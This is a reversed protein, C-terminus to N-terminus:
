AKLASLALELHQGCMFVTSWDLMQVELRGLSDLDVKTYSLYADYEKNDTFFFPLPFFLHLLSLVPCFTLIVSFHSM